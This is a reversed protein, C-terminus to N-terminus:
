TAHSLTRSEVLPAVAPEEKSEEIAESRKKEDPRWLNLYADLEYGVKKAAECDQRVSSEIAIIPSADAQKQQPIQILSPLQLWGLLREFGEKNFYTTGSADNVGALWRVDPDSWFEKTHTHDKAAKGTLSLLLRVQAAARWADEGEIGLSSFIEALAPRIQLKDFLLYREGQWPL